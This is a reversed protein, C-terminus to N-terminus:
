PPPPAILGPLHEASPATSPIARLSPKSESVSSYFRQTPYAFEVRPEDGFRTLIDTWITSASSRRQRASCLYRVDLRVGIDVVTVWVIPTLHKYHVMYKPATHKLQQAVEEQTDESRAWIIETLVNRARQWDSEFTVTVAIENWIYEFGQTYSKISTNFVVGNPLHVIRGTSQDDHVWNGIELLSFTWIGVDVVDGATEGVQIRDGIAFPKRAVIFLWGALNVIPDRLAIALGASTIGLWTGIDAEDSIWLPLLMMMAVLGLGYSVFKGVLYRRAPDDVRRLLTRRLLRRLLLFALAIILTDLVVGLAGSDSGITADLWGAISRWDNHKEM